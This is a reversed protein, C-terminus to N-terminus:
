ARELLAKLTALAERWSAKFREAAEADPLKEHAVAVLAKGPGKPDVTVVIRSPPESWDFRATRAARTPRQRMGADPLWRKRVSTDTFAALILEADAGITRTVSISFGDGMEHRGRMGRAREYNVTINQTWWGPVGHTESLWKAIETHTHATAGWADLLAFWEAHGKGSGRRMAEDSTLLETEPTSAAGTGGDVPPSIPEAEPESGPEGAKRLLQHRAATYSEGTKTMRTRVRSKFTKQTPMTEDDKENSSAV